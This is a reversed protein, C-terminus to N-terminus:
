DSPFGYPFGCPFETQNGNAPVIANMRMRRGREIRTEVRGAACDKCDIEVQCEYIGLSEWSGRSELYRRFGGRTRNHCLCMAVDGDGFLRVNWLVLWCSICWRGDGKRASLVDKRRERSELDGPLSAELGGLEVVVDGGEEGVERRCEGGCLEGWWRKLREKWGELVCVCV